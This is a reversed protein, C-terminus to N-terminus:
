NIGIKYLRLNLIISAIITHSWYGFTEIEYGLQSMVSKTLHSTSIVFFSDMKWQTSSILPTDIWRPKVSISDIFKSEEYHLVKSFLNNFAKTARYTALNRYPYASGYSSLNVIASKKRRKLMKPLVMLTLITQPTVNLNVYDQINSSKLNRFPSLCGWGVNNVLVSIDKDQIKSFVELYQKYSTCKSFDCQITEVQVKSEKQIEEKASELKALTRSVLIINFGIKAFDIAFQKGIGCTAGTILVWSQQGYRDLLNNGRRLGYMYLFHLFYYIQTAMLYLTYIYALSLILDIM